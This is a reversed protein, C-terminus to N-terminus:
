ICQLLPTPFGRTFISVLCMLFNLCQKGRCRKQPFIGKASPNRFFCFSSSFSVPLFLSWSSTIEKDRVTLSKVHSGRPEQEALAPQLPPSPAGPGGSEGYGQGRSRNQRNRKNRNNRRNTRKESPPLLKRAEEKYKTVLPQAEEKELEGYTVEDM